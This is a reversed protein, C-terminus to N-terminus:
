IKVELLFNEDGGGHFNNVIPREFACIEDGKEMANKVFKEKGMLEIVNRNHVRALLIPGTKQM